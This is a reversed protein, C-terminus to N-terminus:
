FKTVDFKLIKLELFSRLEEALNFIRNQSNLINRVYIRKLYDIQYTRGFNFLVLQKLGYHDQWNKEKHLFPECDILLLM